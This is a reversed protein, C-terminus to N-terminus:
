RPTLYYTGIELVLLPPLVFVTLGSYHWWLISTSLVAILHGYKFNKTLGLVIPLTAMKELRDKEVDRWDGIFNRIAMALLVIIPFYSTYGIIGAILFFYQLGRFLSSFYGFGKKNKNVYLFSFLLFPIIEVIRYFFIGGITLIVWVLKPLAKRYSHSHINELYALFGLHLLMIGIFEFTTAKVAVLLLALDILSYLRAQGLYNLFTKM